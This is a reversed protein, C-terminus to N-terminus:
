SFLGKILELVLEDDTIGKLNEILIDARNFKIYKNKSLM